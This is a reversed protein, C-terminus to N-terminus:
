RASGALQAAGAPLLGQLAALVEGHVARLAQWRPAADALAQQRALVDIEGCVRSFWVAGLNASSSKLTHLAQSVMAADQQAFGQDASTILAASSKGYAAVLRSLLDRAGNREMTFIDELVRADLVPEGQARLRPPADALVPLEARAPAAAPAAPAPVAGSRGLGADRDEVWRLLIEGLDRQRFPKALYDCFGAARCREADGSLANATLAIIPTRRARALDHQRYEPDRLRRVGIM